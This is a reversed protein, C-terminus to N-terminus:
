DFGSVVTQSSQEKARDYESGSRFPPEGIGVRVASSLSSSGIVLIPSRRESVAM